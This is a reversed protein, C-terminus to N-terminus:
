AAEYYKHQMLSIQGKMYYIKQFIYGFIVKDTGVFNKQKNHDSLQDMVERISIDAEKVKRLQLLVQSKKIKLKQINLEQINLHQKQFEIIEKLIYVSEFYIKNTLKYDSKNYKKNFKLNKILLSM